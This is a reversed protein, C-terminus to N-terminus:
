QLADMLLKVREGWIIELMLMLKFKQCHLWAFNLRSKGHTLYCYRKRDGVVCGCLFNQSSEGVLRVTDTRLEQLVAMSTQLVAMSFEFQRGCMSVIISFVLTAFQMKPVSELVLIESCKHHLSCEQCQNWCWYRQVSAICVANKVDIGVGTDRFVQTAFQMRPM